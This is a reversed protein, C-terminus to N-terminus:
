RRAVSARFRWAEWLAPISGGHSGSAVWTEISHGPRSTYIAHGRSWFRILSLGISISVIGSALFAYDFVSLELREVVHHINLIHHNLIGEVLHFLGWGM